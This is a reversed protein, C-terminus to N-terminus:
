LLTDRLPALTRSQDSNSNIKAFFPAVLEGFREAIEPTPVALLFSNFCEAPVRQRGSTGTMNQIAHTRLKESRALLYSLEPPVDAATPVAAAVLAATAPQSAPTVAKLEPQHQFFFHAM